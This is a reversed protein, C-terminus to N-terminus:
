PKSRMRTDNRTVPWAESSFSRSITSRARLREATYSMTVLPTWTTRSAVVSQRGHRDFQLGLRAGASAEHRAGLLEGALERGTGGLVVALAGVRVLGDVGQARRAVERRRDGLDEAAEPHVGRVIEHH